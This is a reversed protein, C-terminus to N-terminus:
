GTKLLRQKQRNWDREKITERKDVKKKGKALGIECKAWGRDNFYISLPVLTMGDRRIQGLLKDREKRKVLLTRPRRPEHNDMTANDYEAIYANFLTLEGQHEGAFCENISAKGLRLSKVETGTLVMGTELSDEIFYDHRAKRNQAVYRGAAIGAKSAM